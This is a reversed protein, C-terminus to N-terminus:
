FMFIGHFGSPAEQRRLTAAAVTKLFSARRLEILFNGLEPVKESVHQRRQCTEM